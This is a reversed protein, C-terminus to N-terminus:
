SKVKGEANINLDKDGEAHKGTAQFRSKTGNVIKIDMGELKVFNFPDLVMEELTCNVTVKKIGTAKSVMQQAIGQAWYRKCTSHLDKLNQEAKLNYYDAKFPSTGPYVLFGIVGLIIVIIIATKGGENALSKLHM